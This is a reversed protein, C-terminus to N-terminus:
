LGLGTWAFNAPGYRFFLSFASPSLIHSLHFLVGIRLSVCVRVCVCQLVAGVERGINCSVM